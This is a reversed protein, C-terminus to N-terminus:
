KVQQTSVAVAYNNIASDSVDKGYIKWPPSQGWPISVNKSCSPTTGYLTKTQLVKGTQAVIVKVIIRQKYRILQGVKGSEAAKYTGCTSVKVASQKGACVVLQIPSDWGNYTWKQNIDYTDPINWAADGTDPRLVALPHVSGGYPDAGPLAMGGGPCEAMLDYDNLIPPYTVEPTPEPTIEPTPELTPELTIEITAVPTQPSTVAAISTSPGVSGGSTSPSAAPSCAVAMLATIVLLFFSSRM